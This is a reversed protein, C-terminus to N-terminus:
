VSLESAAEHDILWRTRTAHERLIQIPQQDPNYRGEFVQRLRSAKARGLVLPVITDCLGLGAPTLTLRWGKGPIEIAAFPLNSRAADLCGPFLSLTHGDDGMGVFCLHFARAPGFDRRWAALFDRAAKIPTQEVPWPRQHEPLIKLPDLLARQANGFNSDESSLPVHREDSVSWTVRGPDLSALAAQQCVWAYWVKPTSGGTLAVTATQVAERQAVELILDAKLQFLEDRSGICLEGYESSRTEM